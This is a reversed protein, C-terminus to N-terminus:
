DSNKLHRLYLKAKESNMDNPYKSVLSAFTKQAKAPRNMKMYTQGLLLMVEPDVGADPYRKLVGELRMITAKPRNRDLYFRAVYLEHAVLKKLCKRYITEVKKFYKSQHHTRMFGILDSLAQRTATQDKEHSPPILFWDEPIQKIQAECVRYGVYGDVVKPHTPHFSVFLKYADVAALYKEQKFLADAMRLESMTAYRSFPFRSKVFSFFRVAEPYNEDELEHVGKEYNAKATQGYSLKKTGGKSTACGTAVGWLAGIVFLGRVFSVAM